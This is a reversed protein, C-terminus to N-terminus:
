FQTKRNIFLDASFFFFSIIPHSSYFVDADTSINMFFINDLYSFYQLALIIKCTTSFVYESYIKFYGTNSFFINM